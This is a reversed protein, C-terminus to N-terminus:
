KYGGAGLFPKYLDPFLTGKSLIDDMSYTKDWTQWPVYAMALPLKALNDQQEHTFHKKPPENYSVDLPRVYSSNRNYNSNNRYNPM